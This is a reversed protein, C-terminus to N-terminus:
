EELLNVIVLAGFAKATDAKIAFHTAWPPVIRQREVSTPVQLHAIARHTYPENENTYGSEQQDNVTAAKSTEFRVYVETAGAAALEVGTFVCWKGIFRDPIKYVEVAGNGAVAMAVPGKDPVPRAAKYLAESTKEADTKECTM